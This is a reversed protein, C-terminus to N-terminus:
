AEELGRSEGERKEVRPAAAPTQWPRVKRVFASRGIAHGCTASSLLLFAIIAFLKLTDPNFGSQFCLGLIITTAGLTDGKTVPHLRSYLDPLRLLGVTGGLFFVVGMLCLTATLLGTVVDAL